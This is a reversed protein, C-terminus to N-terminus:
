ISDVRENEGGSDMKMEVAHTEFIEICSVLKKLENIKKVGLIVVIKVGDKRYSDTIQDRSM